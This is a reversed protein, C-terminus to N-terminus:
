WWCVDRATGAPSYLASCTLGARCAGGSGCTLACVDLSTGDGAPARVCRTTPYGARDPCTTTCARTCTGSGGGPAPLCFGGAFGCEDDSACADGIFKGPPPPAGGRVRPLEGFRYGRAELRTLISDLRNATISQVDHFLIVGGGKKEVRSIVFGEFDSRYMAPVEPRSARGDAGFDWDLTDIDWGIGGDVYGESKLVMEKSITMAGYPYRFYLPMEGVTARILDRERQVWPRFQASTAVVHQWQHNAIIHGEDRARRLIAENGAINGGTVFFTAKAGHRKLVDLIKPTLAPSPGDDFTLYVVHNKDLGLSSPVTYGDAKGDPLSDGFEPDDGVPEADDDDPGGCAAAFASFASFTTLLLLPLLGARRM